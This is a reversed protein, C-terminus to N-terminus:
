TGTKRAYLQYLPAQLVTMKRQFINMFADVAPKPLNYFDQGGQVDPSWLYDDLIMLGGVRLLHFALVCDTLVDPAQHSGDIYIFDFAEKNGESLLQVLGDASHTKRKHLDVANGARAKAIEVNRDFRKEVDSMVTDGHGVGGAWTDVCYLEINKQSAVSDIIFCASRGEYSGIELFRRPKHRDILAQWIPAFRTFWDVTFEYENSIQSEPNSTTM